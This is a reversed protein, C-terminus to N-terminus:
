RERLSSDTAGKIPSLFYDIIRRKSTKVEVTISMGPILDIWEDEIFLKNQKLRLRMKYVLGANENEIADATIDIVEADVLGYLTFDFIEIKLQASQGVKVFGIDKNPLEVEAELFDGKPILLMLVQADTVIGGITNTSLQQVFGAVPATLIQKENLMSAKALEQQLSAIERELNEIEVLNAGLFEATLQELEFQTEAMASSLVQTRSQAMKMNQQYEIRQQELEFYQEESVFNNATLNKMSATRKSLITLVAEYRTIDSDNVSLEALQTNLRQELRSYQIRYERWKGEVWANQYEIQEETLDALLGFQKNQLSVTNTPKLKKRINLARYLNHKSYNLDQSLRKLDAHTISKDLEVLPQGAEVLQGEKVFVKKVMGKQLPQIMKVRGSPIIKGQSISVVDLKGFYSWIFAFIVMVIIIRGLTRGVPSAPRELIEIAAPMFELVVHNEKSTANTEKPTHQIFKSLIKKLM